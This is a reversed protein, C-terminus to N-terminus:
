GFYEQMLKAKLIELQEISRRVAFESKDVQAVFAAFKQQLEIPPVPVRFRKADRVNVHPVTSGFNLADAQRKVGDSTLAHLLYEATCIDARPRFLMTRQGLCFEYGEPLIAATGYIGERAYVIDGSMPKLRRIRKKYEEQSVYKMTEWNISTGPLESTRIAPHMLNGQYKPTEHPCDVIAACLHEIEAIDFVSSDATGFMEVFRSKVLKEALYLRRRQESILRDVLHLVKAQQMQCDIPPLSFEFGNFVRKTLHRMTAGHALQMANRLIYKIQYLFFYKDVEVKDFVVKFIHQNLWAEEGPWEYADISASWSILIDGTSVLYKKDLRGSFKNTQYANGTLDQIRIIPKGEDSYEDPKFAYGNVFTAIDGLRM